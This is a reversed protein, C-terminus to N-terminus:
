KKIIVMEFNNGSLKKDFSIWKEHESKVIEYRFIKRRREQSFNVELEKGELEKFYKIVALNFYKKSSPFIIKAYKPKEM